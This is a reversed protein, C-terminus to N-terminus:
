NTSALTEIQKKLSKFSSLILKGSRTTQVGYILRGSPHIFGSILTLLPSGTKNNKTSMNIVRVSLCAEFTNLLVHMISLWVNVLRSHLGPFDYTDKISHASTKFVSVVSHM